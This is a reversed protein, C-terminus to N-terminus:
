SSELCGDLVTNFDEDIVTDDTVLTNMFLYSFM